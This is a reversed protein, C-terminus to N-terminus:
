FGVAWKAFVAWNNLGNCKDHNVVFEYSGGLGAMWEFCDCACGTWSLAGYVKNTLLRGALGSAININSPSIGVFVADAVGSNTMTANSATVPSLGCGNLNYIGVTTPLPICNQKLQEKQRWFLNYGVEFDWDCYEYNLGVWWQITSRPSIEVKSTTITSAPFPLGPTSQDVVLIYRSFPGNPLFDFTRCEKHKLVYRYNFDTMLLLSTNENCGCWDLSYDGRFGVGISAHRSAVLPEFVFEATPTRGGPITGIAYLGVHNEDCWTYDYGLRIQVDEFGTRRKGDRCNDCYFKSSELLPNSLADVVNTIGPCLTSPTTSTECCNLRHHANTVGWTFDSWLGCWWDDLNVYVNGLYTFQKRQPKITLTSAFPNNPDQTSLGLELSNVVGAGGGQAVTLTNNGDGLLLSSAFKDSHRTQKYLTLSSFFYKKDSHNRVREAYTLLNIWALNESEGEPIYVHSACNTADTDALVNGSGMAFLLLLSIKKSNMSDGKKFMM